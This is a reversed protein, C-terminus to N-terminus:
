LALVNLPDEANQLVKLAQAVASGTLTEAPTELLKLALTEFTPVFRELLTPVDMIAKLSIPASWKRRGTYFVIPLIPHLRQQAAPLRTDEWSRRQAEWIRRYM